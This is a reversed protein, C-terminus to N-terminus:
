KWVRDRFRRSSARPRGGHVHRRLDHGAQHHVGRSGRDGVPFRITAGESRGIWERQMTRTSEPWDVVDLDQLLRDAYETIRFMWQRLPKRLVPFGGRESRGDIVEENALVTGLRPCWNVTQEGLYALRRTDLYSRRDSDSMASWTMSEGEDDVPVVDGSELRSVLGSISSAKRTAPDFYSEYAKLWIWQTWRYYDEDTTSLERSWDYSFGSHRSSAVFRTSPRSPPTERTFGRDPVAYQEAPLGFADFGMPHLVNFGSM